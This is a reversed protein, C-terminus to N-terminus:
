RKYHPIHNVYTENIRKMEKLDNKNLERIVRAPRGFALTKLPIQTYGTFLSDADIYAIESFFPDDIETSDLGMLAGRKVTCSHLTVRHRVTVNDELNLLMNPSQN